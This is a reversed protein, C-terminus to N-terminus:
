HGTEAEIGILCDIINRPTLVGIKEGEDNTVYVADGRRFHTLADVVITDSDLSDLKRGDSRGAPLTDMIRGIKEVRYRPVDAVFNSVYENAPNLVIDQPTGIQVIVGDKMIAIRDGIRLAEMIDHTVFVITKKLERQLRIFEDQLQRRILPDLASFPEDLLWLDPETALSRAIGVRQQQGGSLEHPFYEEKGALGVLLVMEAARRHREAADMGQVKLPFAVNDIVNLHPLLGFNQFVMGIKHRRVDILAKPSMQALNEGDLVIQGFTPEILRSLCRLVTSKGSGSLGMLVMIEGTHVEFSVGGVAPIHGRARIQKIDTPRPPANAYEQAYARHSAGYIKWIDRCELKAM